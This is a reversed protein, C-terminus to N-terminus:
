SFKPFVVLHQRDVILHLLQHTGVREVCIVGLYQIAAGHCRLSLAPIIFGYAIQLAKGIEEDTILNEGAAFANLPLSQCLLVILLLATVLRNMKKM